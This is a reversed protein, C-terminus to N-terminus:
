VTVEAKEWPGSLERVKKDGRRQKGKRLLCKGSIFADARDKLFAYYVGRSKMKWLFPWGCLASENEVPSCARFILEFNAPRRHAQPM